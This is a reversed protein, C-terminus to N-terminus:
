LICSLAEDIGQSSDLDINRAGTYAYVVWEAINVTHDGMREFYKSIMLLDPAEDAGQEDTKIMQVLQKMVTDFLDDIIDDERCSNLALEVDGVVYANISNKLMSVAIRGMKVAEDIIESARSKKLMVSHITIDEAIDGIREMDTIMKLVASVRHFDSAVPQQRLIVNLCLSEIEKEMNNIQLEYETGTELLEPNNEKLAGIANEIAKELLLAMDILRKNIEDLQSQYYNRM